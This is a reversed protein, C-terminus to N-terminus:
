NAPRTSRIAATGAAAVRRDADFNELALGIPDMIQHCSRCPEVTRHEELRERVSRLKIPEGGIVNNEELQPVM